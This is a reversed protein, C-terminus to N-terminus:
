CDIALKKKLCSMGIDYIDRGSASCIQFAKKMLNNYHKIQQFNFTKKMTKLSIYNGFDEDPHFNLHEFELVYNFFDHVDKLTKMESRFMNVECDVPVM